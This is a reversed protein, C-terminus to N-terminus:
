SRPAGQGLGARARAWLANMRDLLTTADFPKIIFSGAALRGAELVDGKDQSSTVIIVPIHKLDEQQRLWRLLQLGTMDPMHIDAIVLRVPDKVQEPAVIMAQAAKADSAELIRTYKHALLANKLNLRAFTSDDVILIKSDLPFM